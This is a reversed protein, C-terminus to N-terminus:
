LGIYSNTIQNNMYKCRKNKCWTKRWWDYIENQLQENFESSNSTEAINIAKRFLRTVDSIMHMNRDRGAIKIVDVGLEVLKNISCLACGLEADLYPIYIAEMDKSWVKYKGKCPIGIENGGKSKEEGMNHILNCAGNFFSCGLYGFIEVEVLNSACIKEIEYLSSQYTLVVRSAGLEKLFLVQDINMTDFYTSAHLKIPLKMEGLKALLGIDGVIINDVGYEIARDIYKFYEKKVNSNRDLSDSFIPTNAALSVKVNEKHSIEVIKKFENESPVISKNKGFQGRGSFSYNAYYDTQMGVYIEDAGAEIQLVTSEVSNVPSLLNM